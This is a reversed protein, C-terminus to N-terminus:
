VAFLLVFPSFLHDVSLSESCPFGETASFSSASPHSGISPMAVIAISSVASSLMRLLHVLLQGLIGRRLALSNFDSALSILTEYIREALRVSPALYWVM